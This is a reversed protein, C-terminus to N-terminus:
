VKEAYGVINITKRNIFGYLKSLVIFLKIGLLKYFIHFKPPWKNFDTTVSISKFGANDLLNGFNMPSFTYLHYNIDNPKYNHTWSECPVVIIVKGGVKIKKYLEKLVEAPSVVHELCHNSIAIDISNDKINNLYKTCDIGNDIAINRAFDNLEVGIKNKCNLNKLIYGGGCGFDLVSDTEKIFKQFFYKGLKGTLIGIEKQFKNFYQSDYHTVAKEM